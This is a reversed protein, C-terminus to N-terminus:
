PGFMADRPIAIASVKAACYSTSNSSTNGGPGNLGRLALVEAHPEQHGCKLRAMGSTKTLMRRPVLFKRREDLVFKLAADRGKGRM